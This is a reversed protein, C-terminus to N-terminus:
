EEGFVLDYVDQGYKKQIALKVDIEPLGDEFLSDVEARVKDVMGAFINRGIVGFSTSDVGGVSVIDPADLSEVSRWTGTRDAYQYHYYASSAEGIKTVGRVQAADFEIYEGNPSTGWGAYLKIPAM